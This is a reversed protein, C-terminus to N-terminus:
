FTYNLGCSVLFASAGSFTGNINDNVVDRDTKYDYLVGVGLELKDTFKHKAGVSFLWADSDPLEFNLTQTPVPTQDWAVGAMLTTKTNLRYDVGLRIATSDDWNKTIPRDFIAYLVPNTLPVAYNFDLNEYDSWFTRDVSLDFTWDQWTYAASLSLVAPAPVSVDGTTNITPTMNTALTVDGDFDMDVKSRYTIALNWSDNPRVDIALNYGWETTDGDMARSASLGSAADVVGNSMVTAKNYLMRVGAAVSIMNNIKYSVTPNLEFVKLEFKEAFTKPYPQQWRKALGFPETFSLGFRFNHYDPSVMFFTPLLFYEKESSGDYYSSRNDEYDISSLYLFTATGEVQWADPLYAMGAPNYYAADARNASAINAGSKATADMSQEPIRFGSAMASGTGLVSILALTFITKKM